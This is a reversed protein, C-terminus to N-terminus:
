PSEPWLITTPFDEQGPVDRLGQRYITMDSTLTNDSLALYDTAALKADREKRAALSARELESAERAALEDETPIKMWCNPNKRLRNVCAIVSDDSTFPIQTEPDYRPLRMQLPPEITLSSFDSAIEITM